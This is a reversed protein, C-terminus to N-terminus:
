FLESSDVSYGDDTRSDSVSDIHQEEHGPPVQLDIM